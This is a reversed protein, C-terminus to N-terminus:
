SRHKGHDALLPPVNSDSATWAAAHASSCMSAWEIQDAALAQVIGDYSGATFIEVKVGLAEELYQRFPEFRAMRDAENEASSVGIRVTKYDDKWDQALASGAAAFTLLAATVIRM